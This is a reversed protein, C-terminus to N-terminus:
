LTLRMTRKRMPLGEVFSNANKNPGTYSFIHSFQFFFERRTGVTIVHCYQLQTCRM